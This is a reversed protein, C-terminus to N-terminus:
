LIFAIWTELASSLEIQCRWTCVHIYIYIYAYIYIYTYKHIHRSIYMDVCICILVYVYINAVWMDLFYKLKNQRRCSYMHIHTCIYLYSHICVNKLDELICIYIHKYVDSYNHIHTYPCGYQLGVIENIYKTCVYTHTNYHIFLQM